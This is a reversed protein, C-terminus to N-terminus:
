YQDDEKALERDDKWDIATLTQLTIRESGDEIAQRAAMKLLRVTAGIAEGAMTHIKTALERSALQSPVALPLVYEYSMLFRLYDESLEWRHLTTPIFRRAMQPDTALANVAAMTGAAAISIRHENSLGRIAIMLNETQKGASVINSFEDIVILRVNTLQLMRKCLSKLVKVPNRENHPHNLQTIILSYLDGLDPKAPIEIRIVPIIGTGDPGVEIPHNRMFHNLLTTKGNGARGKILLHDVSVHRPYLLLQELHRLINKAVPYGVWQDRAIYQLREEKTGDLLAAVHPALHQPPQTM